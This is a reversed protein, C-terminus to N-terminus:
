PVTVMKLLNSHGPSEEQTGHVAVVQDGSKVMGEAVAQKIAKTIV